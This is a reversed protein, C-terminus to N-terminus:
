RSRVLHAIVRRLEAANRELESLTQRLAAKEERADARVAGAPEADVVETMTSPGLPAGGAVQDANSVQHSVLVHRGGLLVEM